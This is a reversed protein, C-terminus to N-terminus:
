LCFASSLNGKSCFSEETQHQIDSQSTESVLMEFTLGWREKVKFSKLGGHRPNPLIYRDHGWWRCVTFPWPRMLLMYLSRDCSWWCFVIVSWPSMLLICHITMPEDALYLSHDHSWWCSVIFPWQSMLLICHIIMAEDIFYLSHDHCWWWSVIFSWPSM